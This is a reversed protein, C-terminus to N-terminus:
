TDSKDRGRLAVAIGYGLAILLLAPILLVFATLALAIISVAIGIASGVIGMIVGFLAGFLGLILPGLFVGIMLALLLAVWLWASGRPLRREPQPGDSSGGAGRDTQSQGHSSGTDSNEATLEPVIPLDNDDPQPM